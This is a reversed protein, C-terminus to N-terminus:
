IKKSAMYFDCHNNCIKKQWTISEKELIYKTNRRAKQMQTMEIIFFPPM